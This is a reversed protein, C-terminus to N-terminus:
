KSLINIFFIPIRKLGEWDRILDRTTELDNLHSHQRVPTIRFVGTHVTEPHMPFSKLSHSALVQSMVFEPCNTVQSVLLLISFFLTGYLQVTPGSNVSGLVDSINSQMSSCTSNLRLAVSLVQVRTEDRHM